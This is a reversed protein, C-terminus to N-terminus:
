SSVVRGKSGIVLSCSAPGLWTVWRAAHRASRRRPPGPRSLHSAPEHASRSRRHRRGVPGPIGSAPWRADRSLVCSPSLAIRRPRRHRRRYRPLYREALTGRIPPGAEFLRRAAETSGARPLTSTGGIAHTRNSSPLSPWSLKQRTWQRTSHGMSISCTAANLDHGPYRHLESRLRERRASDLAGYRALAQATTM